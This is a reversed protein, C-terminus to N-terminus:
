ELALSVGQQEHRDTAYLMKFALPEANVFKQTYMAEKSFAIATSLLVM